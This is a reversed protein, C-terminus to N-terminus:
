NSLIRELLNILPIEKVPLAFAPDLIADVAPFYKFFFIISSPPLSGKM